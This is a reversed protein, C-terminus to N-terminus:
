CVLFEEHIMNPIPKYPWTTRTYPKPVMGQPKKLPEAPAPPAKPKVEVEEEPVTDKMEPAATSLCRKNIAKFSSVRFISATRFSM